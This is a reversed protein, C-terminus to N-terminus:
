CHLSQVRFRAIVMICYWYSIVFSQVHIFDNNILYKGAKEAIAVNGALNVARNGFVTTALQCVECGLHQLINSSHTDTMHPIRTNDTM